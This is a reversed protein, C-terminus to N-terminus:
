QKASRQATSVGDSPAGNARGSGVPCSCNKAMVNAAFQFLFFWCAIHVCKFDLAVPVDGLALQFLFPGFQRIIIQSVNVALLIFQQAPNLFAGAFRPFRDFFGHLFEAGTATAAGILYLGTVKSL